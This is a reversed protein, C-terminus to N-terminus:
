NLSVAQVILNNIEEAIRVACDAKAISTMTTDASVEDQLKQLKEIQEKIVKKGDM